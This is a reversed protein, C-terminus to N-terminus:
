EARRGIGALLVTFAENAIQEFDGSRMGSQQWYSTSNIAGLVLRMVVPVNIPRFAGETVGQELIKEWRREYRRRAERSKDVRLVADLHRALVRGAASHSVARLHARVLARIHDAAFSNPTLEADTWQEIQQIAMEILGALLEEKSATYYYLSGKSLGVAEGIAELTAKEYGMEAFVEAAAELIGKRRQQVRFELRAAPLSVNRPRSKEVSM